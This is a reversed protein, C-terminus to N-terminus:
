SATAPLARAKTAADSVAIAPRSSIRPVVSCGAELETVILDIARSFESSSIAPAEGVCPRGKDLGLIWWFGDEVEYSYLLTARSGLLAERLQRGDCDDVYIANLVLDFRQDRVLDVAEVLTGVCRYRCGRDEFRSLMTKAQEFGKGVLLVKLHRM